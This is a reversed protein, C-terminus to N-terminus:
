RARGQTGDLKRLMREASPRLNNQFDDRLERYRCVDDFTVVAPAKLARRQNDNIIILKFVEPISQEANSFM